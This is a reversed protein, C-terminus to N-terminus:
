KKGWIMCGNWHDDKITIILSGFDDSKCSGRFQGGSSSLTKINGSEDRSYDIQIDKDIVHLIDIRSKLEVDDMDRDIRIVLDLESNEIFQYVDKEAIQTKNNQGLLKQFSILVLVPIIIKAIQKM